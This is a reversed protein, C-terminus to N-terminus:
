ACDWNLIAHNYLSLEGRFNRVFRLLTDHFEEKNIMREIAWHAILTALAWKLVLCHAITPALTAKFSLLSCKLLRNM